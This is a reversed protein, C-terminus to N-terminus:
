LIDSKLTEAILEVASKVDRWDCIELPTHLNLCPISILQTECDKSNLQITTTNTGGAWGVACEQIPLNNEEAIEKMARAIRRSNEPSYNIVCGDGLKLDGWRSKEIGLEGDQTVTVDIDISIDPNINHSAVHLGRLGVEEQTGALFVFTYKHRTEIESEKKLKEALWSVILVGIKDDLGPGKIKNPGYELDINKGYVALTGINIGLEQVEEKTEAGIFVKLNECKDVTERDEKKEAHIPKKCVVGSTKKGNLFMIESGPLTKVDVGGVKDLTIFGKDDINTVILGLEDIHASILVKIPGTGLSWGSNGIKDVYERKLGLGGMFEDWVKIAGSEQSSPSPKELIGFLLDKINEEM